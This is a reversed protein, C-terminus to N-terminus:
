INCGARNINASNQLLVRYIFITLSAKLTIFIASKAKIKKGDDSGVIYKKNEEIQKILDAVTADM